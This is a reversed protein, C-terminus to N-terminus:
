LTKFRPPFTVFDTVSSFLEEVSAFVSAPHPTSFLSSLSSSSSSSAADGQLPPGATEQQAQRLCYDRTWKFTVGSIVDRDQCKNTSRSLLPDLPSLPCPSCSPATAAGHLRLYHPPFALTPQRDDASVCPQATTTPVCACVRRPGPISGAWRSSGSHCRAGQGSGRGGAVRTLQLDALVIVYRWACLTVVQLSGAICKVRASRAEAARRVGPSRGSPCSINSYRYRSTCSYRCCCWCKM